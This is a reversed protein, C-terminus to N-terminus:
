RSLQARSFFPMTALVVARKRPCEDLSELSDIREILEIGEIREVGLSQVLEAQV